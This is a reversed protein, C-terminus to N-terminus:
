QIVFETFYINIIRGSVIEANVKDVLERKLRNRGITSSIDEITKSSLISIILDLLQPTRVTLEEQLKPDSMELQLSVKLYRQGNTEALNVVIAQEFFFLHGAFSKKETAEETAAETDVKAAPAFFFRVAVFAVIALVVMGGGIFIILKMGGKKKEPEAAETDPKEKEPM